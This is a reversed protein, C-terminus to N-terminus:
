SLFAKIALSLTTCISYSLISIDCKLERETPFSCSQYNKIDRETRIIVVDSSYAFTVVGLGHRGIGVM